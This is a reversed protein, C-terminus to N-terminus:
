KGKISIPKLIDALDSASSAGSKIVGMLQNVQSWDGSAKAQKILSPMIALAQKNAIQKAKTDETINRAEHGAKMAATAKLNSDDHVNSITADRLDSEQRAAQIAKASSIGADVSSALDNVSASAGAGSSAGSGGASLIPNLGAKQLDNVERQHATNSMEQQWAREERAADINANQSQIGSFLGLGGGLAAGWPGGAAGGASAGGAAQPAAGFISDLFGM